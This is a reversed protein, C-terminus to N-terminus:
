PVRSIARRLLSPGGLAAPGSVSRRAESPKRSLLLAVPYDGDRGPPEPGLSGRQLRARGAAGQGLQHGGAATPVGQSVLFDRAANARREGLAQNYERTGREDAHGEISARM